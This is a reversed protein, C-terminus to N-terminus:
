FRKRAALALSAEIGDYNSLFFASDLKQYGVSATVSFWENPSWSANVDAGYQWDNREIFTVDEYFDDFWVRSVSASAGVTVDESVLHLLDFSM